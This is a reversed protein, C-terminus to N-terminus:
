ETKSGELEKEEVRTTQVSSIGEEGQRGRVFTTSRNWFEVRVRQLQQLRSAFM